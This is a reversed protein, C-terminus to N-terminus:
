GYVNSLLIKGADPMSSRIERVRIPGSALALCLRSGAPPIRDHGARTHERRSRSRWTVELHELMLRSRRKPNTRPMLSVSGVIVSVDGADLIGLM